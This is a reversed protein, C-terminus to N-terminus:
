YVIKVLKVRAHHESPIVVENAAIQLADAFRLHLNLKDTSFLSNREYQGDPSIVYEFVSTNNKVDDNFLLRLSAPTKALFFSAYFVDQDQSYQKKFLVSKWLLSGDPNLSLLFINDHNYDTISRYGNRDAYYNRSYYTVEREQKRIQEGVIVMGDDKRFVIHRVNADPIGRQDNNLKGTVSAIFDENFDEFYLQFFGPSGSSPIRLRYYGTARGRNKRAFFGAGALSGSTNDYEFIVDHTLYDQMPVIVPTVDSSDTYRYIEFYHQERRDWNNNKSLAISVGGSNDVLLGALEGPDFYYDQSLLIQKSWLLRMNEVDFVLAELLNPKEFHYLLAKKKDESHLLQPDPPSFRVGFDKITMSDIMDGRTNYQHQKVITRNRYRYQYIISFITKNGLANMVRATKKDLELDKNWSTRMREDFATLTFSESKDRLLLFKNDYKGILFYARDNNVNMEDSILVSQAPLFAWGVFFICVIPYKHM